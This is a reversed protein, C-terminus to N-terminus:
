FKDLSKIFRLPDVSAGKIKVSFHLHPEISYGTNGSFAIIDGRKVVQDKKVKFQNLHLYLSFIGLGHDIILTKGYTPLKQAFCVRGDNIAYIPTGPEAELDVGLHWIAIDGSKRIVGFAGVDKIKQLPYNFGRSFYAQSTYLALVEKIAFKEKTVMSELIKKPTFGKEKLEPIVVLETIPVKRKVVNIKKKLSIENGFNFELDYKGPKKRIDIGVIALWDGTASQFFDIKKGDLQATPLVRSTIQNKDIKILLTDGQELETSSLSIKPLKIVKRAADIMEKFIEQQKAFHDLDVVSGDEPNIKTAEIDIVIFSVGKEGFRISMSGDDGLTDLLRPKQLVVNYSLSKLKEFHEKRIAWFFNDPDLDPNYFYDILQPDKKLEWDTKLAGWGGPRNTHLSIVGDVKELDLEKIIQTALKRVKKRIRESYVPNGYVDFLNEQIGKETFMRNANIYYKQGDMQFCVFRDIYNYEPFINKILIGQQTRMEQWTEKDILEILKGGKECVAKQGARSAGIENEHIVLYTINDGEKTTIKLKVNPFNTDVIKTECLSTQESEVIEKKEKAPKPKETIKPIEPIQKSLYYYFGGAFLSIVVLIIIIGILSQSQHFNVKKM